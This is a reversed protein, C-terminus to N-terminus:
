FGVRGGHLRGVAVHDVAAHCAPFVEHQAGGRGGAHAGAQRRRDPEPSDLHAIHFQPTIFRQVKDAGSMSSRPWSLPGAPRILPGWVPAATATFTNTSCSTIAGTRTKSSNRHTATCPVGGPPM